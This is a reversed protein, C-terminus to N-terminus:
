LENLIKKLEDTTKGLIMRINKVMLHRRGSVYHLDSEKLIPYQQILKDKLEPWVSILQNPHTKKM